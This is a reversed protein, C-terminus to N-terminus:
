IPPERMKPEATLADTTAKSCGAFYWDLGVTDPMVRSWDSDAKEETLQGSEDVSNRELIKIEQSGCRCEVLLLRAKERKAGSEIEQEKKPAETEGESAKPPRERWKIWIRANGDSLVSRSTRHAFYEGAETSGLSVWSTGGQLRRYSDMGGAERALDLASDGHKNTMLLNAGEDLLLEAIELNNRSAAMMLPTMGENDMADVERLYTLLMEVMQRNNNRVALHLATTGDNGRVNPDANEALLNRVIDLHNFHTAWLLPSWGNEDKMNKFVFLPTDDHPNYELDLLDEVLETEGNKVAEFFEASIQKSPEFYIDMMSSTLSEISPIQLDKSCGSLLLPLSTAIFSISASKMITEKM